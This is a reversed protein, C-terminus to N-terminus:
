FAQNFNFYVGMSERGFGFDLRLNMRPQVEYRYGVGYNPLWNLNNNSIVEENFISGTGVWVVAGHKSLTKDKKLFTHRYEAIFFIMSKDRFRGWQYGRLDFPTGLQSM